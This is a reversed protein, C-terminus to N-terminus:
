YCVWLLWLQHLTGTTRPLSVRLQLEGQDRALDIDSGLAFGLEALLSERRVADADDPPPDGPAWVITTEIEITRATDRVRIRAHPPYAGSALFLVLEAVSAVFRATEQSMGEASSYITVVPPAALLWATRKRITEAPPPGGPWGTSYQGMLGRLSVAAGSVQRSVSDLLGRQGAPLQQGLLHLGMVAAAIDQVLHDHLADAFAARERERLSAFMELLAQVPETGTGPEPTTTAASSPASQGGDAGAYEPAKPQAGHLAGVADLLQDPLFPKALTAVGSPIGDRNGSMMLCRSAFGPDAATLEEVLTSGRESGMHMDILVADYGSPAMARAQALTGAADVRYGRSTLVRCIVARVDAADDVVLVRASGFCGAMVRGGDGSSEAFM